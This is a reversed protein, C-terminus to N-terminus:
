KFCELINNVRNIYTHKTKVENMLFKIENVANPDNKKAIAKKFLETPSPDYVLKNDFVKNVFESNTIGLHGYSIHKFIRCPVYYDGVQWPGQITPALYARNVIKRNEEPSVPNSWPNIIRVRIGNKKCENFFPDLETHNQFQSNGQDYSGIWVCEKNKMENHAESENIEHPLLDTAWPQHIIDHGVFTYDNIKHLNRSAVDKHFFQLNIKNATDIEKYNDGSCNHLIYKSNKNKPIKKDVQGETLFLCDDFNVNSVDDKDDFWSTEYGLSQFARYFAYHIYSHTHSHLKHGWIVVKM